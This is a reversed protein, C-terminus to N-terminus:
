KNEQRCINRRAKWISDCTLTLHFSFISNNLLRHIVEDLSSPSLNPLSSPSANPLSLDDEDAIVYATNDIYVIDQLSNIVGPSIDDNITNLKNNLAEEMEYLRELYETTSRYNESHESLDETFFEMEEMERTITTDETQSNALQELRENTTINSSNRREENRAEQGRKIESNQIVGIVFNNFFFVRKLIVSTYYNWFYETLDM